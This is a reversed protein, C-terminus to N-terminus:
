PWIIRSMELSQDIGASGSAQSIATAMRRAVPEAVTAVMEAAPRTAGWAASMDVVWVERRTRAIPAPESKKLWTLSAPNQSTLSYKPRLTPWVTLVQDTMSVIMETTAPPSTRSSDSTM